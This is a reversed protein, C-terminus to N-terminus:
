TVKLEGAIALVVRHWGKKTTAYTWQFLAVHVEQAQSADELANDAPQMTYVATGVGSPADYTYTGNNTNLINVANLSNLVAGTARNYLTLTLAALSSPSAGAEDRVVFSIKATGKEAIKVPWVTENANAAM